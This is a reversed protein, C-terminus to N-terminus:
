IRLLHTKRLTDRGGTASALALDLPRSPLVLALPSEPIAALTFAAALPAAQWKQVPTLTAETSCCSASPQSPRRSGDTPPSQTERHCCDAAQSQLSNTKCLPTQKASHAFAPMCGFVCAAAAMWFSIAIAVAPRAFSIARM